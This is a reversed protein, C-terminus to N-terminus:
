VVSGVRVRLLDLVASILEVLLSAAVRSMLTLIPQFRFAFQLLNPLDCHTVSNLFRRVRMSGFSNYGGVDRRRNRFLFVFYVIIFIFFLIM